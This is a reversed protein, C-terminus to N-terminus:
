IKRDNPLNEVFILWDDSNGATEVRMTRKNNTGALIRNEQFIDNKRM